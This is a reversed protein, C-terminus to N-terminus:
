KPMLVELKTCTDCNQRYYKLKDKRTNNYYGRLQKTKNYFRSTSSLFCNTSYKISITNM